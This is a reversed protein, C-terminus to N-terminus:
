HDSEGSLRRMRCFPASEVVGQILHSAQGQNAELDGTIKEVVVEDGYNLSRGIAYSLMRETLCRYFDPRRPGVLVQKLQTVTGFSEGSILRGGAEIPQGGEDDRWTGIATFNEFALGLPDFRAHCSSCLAESRHLELLQRLTPNELKSHEASAELEPVLAPAPPAPTGLINDLIFLGRKVPSTRTPNSTVLLFTGQTLVGGLPSDAPLQTKRLEEGEVGPVDYHKALRQNLFAYDSHILEILSRNERLVYSFLRETEERMDRRTDDDLRSRQDRLERYRKYADLHEASADTPPTRRGTTTAELYDNLRDYEPRLGLAALPDISVSEVDHTQLWQGVFSGIFEKARDDRLLRDVQGALNARLMDREALDLLTEDPMTSWLFYSLRSALSYDDIEPFTEISDGRPREVRFLFRPSALVATMARAMSQEFSLTSTAEGVEAVELLRRLHREDVPGRYARQCFRRLVDAAYAARLKVDTPPQDWHFFREYGDPKRWYSTALPGEVRSTPLKMRVYTGELDLGNQKEPQTAIPDLTIELSHEGKSLQAELKLPYVFNTKWGYEEDHLVDGDLLLRVRARGPNFNFSGDIEIPIELRYREDHEVTFKAIVTAAADFSLRRSKSDIDGNFQDEDITQVSIVRSALPVAREVIKRAAELYKEALLPSITLADANNDFGDGSDDPPFEVSTDFEIGMLDRITNRYELRNLRRLTHKGPDPQEPTSGFAHKTIWGFLRQKESAALRDEGDPPMVDARVNKLVSWWLETDAILAETSSHQDFTLEGEAEGKAHCAFCYQQLIPLADRQYETVANGDAAPSQRMPVAVLCFVIM